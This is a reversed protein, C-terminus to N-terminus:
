HIGDHAEQGKPTSEAVKDVQTLKEALALELARVGKETIRLGPRGRVRGEILKRNQAEALLNSVTGASFNLERAVARVPKHATEPRGLAMLYEVAIGVYFADDRHRRGPRAMEALQRVLASSQEAEDTGVSVASRSGAARVVRARVMQTLAAVPVERLLATTVPRVESDRRPRLRVEIPVVEGGDAVFNVQVEHDPLARSEFRAEHIRVISNRFKRTRLDVLEFNGANSPM